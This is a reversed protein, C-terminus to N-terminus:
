YSKRHINLFDFVNFEEVSAFQILELVDVESFNHHHLQDLYFCNLDWQATLRDSLCHGIGLTERIKNIVDIKNMIKM